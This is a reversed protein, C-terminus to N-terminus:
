IVREIIIEEGEYIGAEKTENPNLLIEMVLDKNQWVSISIQSKTKNTIEM